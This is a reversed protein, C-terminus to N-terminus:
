FGDLVNGAVLVLYGILLTVFGTHVLPIDIKAYHVIVAIIALAISTFFTAHKPPSLRLM